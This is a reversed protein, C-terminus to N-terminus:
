KGKQFIKIVFFIFASPFPQYSLIFVFMLLTGAQSQQGVRAVSPLSPPLHPLVPGRAWSVVAKAVSPKEAAGQPLPM